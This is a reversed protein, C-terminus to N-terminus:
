NTSSCNQLSHTAREFRAVCCAFLDGRRWPLGPHDCKLFLACEGPKQEKKICWMRFSRSYHACRRQGIRRSTSPVRISEPEVGSTVSLCARAVCTRSRYQAYRGVVSFPTKHTHGNKCVLLHHDRGRFFPDLDRRLFGLLLLKRKPNRKQSM